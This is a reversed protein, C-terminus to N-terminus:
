TSSATLQFTLNVVDSAALGAKATAYAAASLLIKTADADYAITSIENLTCGHLTLNTVGSAITIASAASTAIVSSSAGTGFTALPRATGTFDTTGVIETALNATSGAWTAVATAAPTWSSKFAGFYWSNIKSTGSRFILDLVFNRGVTPVINCDRSAETEVYGRGTRDDGRALAQLRAWTEKEPDGAQIAELVSEHKRIRTDYIGAFNMGTEGLVMLGAPTFQITGAAQARKLDNLIARVKAPDAALMDLECADVDIRPTAHETTM